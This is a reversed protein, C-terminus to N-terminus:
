MFIFRVHEHWTLGPPTEASAAASLDGGGIQHVSIRAYIPLMERKDKLTPPPMLQRRCFPPEKRRQVLPVPPDNRERLERCRGPVGLPIYACKDLAEPAAENSRPKEHQRVVRV